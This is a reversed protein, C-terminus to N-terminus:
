VKETLINESTFEISTFQVQNKEWLNETYKNNYLIHLFM